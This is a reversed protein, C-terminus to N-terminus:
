NLKQKLNQDNDFRQWVIKLAYKTITFTTYLAIVIFLVIDLYICSFWPVHPANPKFIPYNTKHRAVFEIWYMSEQMPDVLNDRFQQSVLNVQDAYKKDNLVMNLKEYVSHLSIEHFSIIEAIGAHKARMANRFQDSYIPIFVM